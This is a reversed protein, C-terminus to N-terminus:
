QARPARPSRPTFTSRLSWEGGEEVTYANLTADVITSRREKLEKGSMWIHEHKHSTLSQVAHTFSAEREEGHTESLTWRGGVVEKM